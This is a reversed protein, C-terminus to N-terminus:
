IQSGLCMMDYMKYFGTLVHLFLLVSLGWFAWRVRVNNQSVAIDVYQRVGTVWVLYLSLGYGWSLNGHSMRPGHEFLFLRMVLGVLLMLWCFIDEAYIKRRLISAVLAAVPFAVAYLM